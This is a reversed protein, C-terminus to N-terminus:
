ALKSSATYDGEEEKARWNKWSSAVRVVFPAAHLAAVPEDDAKHCCRRKGM